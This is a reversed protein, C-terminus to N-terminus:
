AIPADEGTPRHRELAGHAVQEVVRGLEVRGAIRDLDGHPATMELYSIAAGADTGAVHRVDEIAEISGVQGAVLGTGPQTERDDGVDGGGVTAPREREIM